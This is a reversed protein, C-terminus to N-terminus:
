EKIANIVDYLNLYGLQHSFLIDNKKVWVVKSIGEEKQPSFIEQNSKMEFWSTKKLIRTRSKPHYYTHYTDLLFRKLQLDKIGTEEKVERYAAIKISEGKEIKGKPLDWVDNRLILLLQEHDNRVLGGAALIMRYYDFVHKKMDELELGYLQIETRAESKELKDIYSSILKANFFYQHFEHSPLFPKVLKEKGGLVLLNNNIYIKYM